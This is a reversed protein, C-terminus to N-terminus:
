GNTVVRYFEVGGVYTFTTTGGSATFPVSRGSSDEVRIATGPVTAQVTGGVPQRVVGHDDIVWHGGPYTRVDVAGDTTFAHFGDADIGDYPAQSLNADVTLDGFVSRTVSPALTTYRALPVGAYHPGLAEQLRAALVLWPSQENGLKWEYSEVLGFAANWTLVEGDIALSLDYLDHQYMLVKDHFLWTALPYPQWNGAGFYHDVYALERQMMLLGGHFGVFDRALRDWGDEAMLCHTRYPRLLSLWGDDYALPTPSAANFDRLWPRAGIQDLFVCDAGLSRWAELEQTARKRVAPSWPSVIVGQHDGYTITEPTQAEDLVSVGDETTARLTPSTPDWWSLNDYPMVLDGRAHAQAIVNALDATTGWAPDPPLFDPDNADHGGPEYAVPHLLIPSPLQQLSPAWKAFPLALKAVDAKILPARALTPLLAGLKDALSPYSGIGNERRYDLITQQATEGIRVRVVPSTWTGGPEVWTAFQHLLCYSRNSCPPANPPFHVFGFQLPAIPGRNVAYLAVHGGNTDLALYDAFSWRSPYIQTSNGVLSFFAPALKVGPLVDPAYGAEVARTDGALGAPFRIKDRVARGNHLTMRLDFFARHAHLTVTVSSGYQLTLTATRANWRVAPRFACGGLSTPEDPNLWWLCGWNGTLLKRGRADDVELVRGTHASLVVRYGPAQVVDRGAHHSFGIAAAALFSIAVGM